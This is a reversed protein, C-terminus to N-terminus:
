NLNHHKMLEYLTKIIDKGLITTKTFVALGTWLILKIIDSSLQIDNFYFVYSKRPMINVIYFITIIAITKILTNTKIETKKLRIRKWAFSFDPLQEIYRVILLYCAVISLTLFIPPMNITIKPGLATFIPILYLGVLLFGIVAVEYIMMLFLKKAIRERQQRNLERDLVNQKKLEADTDVKQTTSEIQESPYGKPDVEVERSGEPEGLLKQIVQEKIDGM